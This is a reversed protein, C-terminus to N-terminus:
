ASDQEAALDRLLDAADTGDSWPLSARVFFERSLRQELVEQTIGSLPGGEGTQTRHAHLAALKQEKWRRTDLIDTIEARPTGLNARATESLKSLPGNPRDLLALMDERPTTGFYLSPTQWPEHWSGTRFAPDAAIVVAHRVVHHLHIHDPHGYVGEPGFTVIAAPRLERIAPVLEAAAEVVSAQVFANPHLANESGEMGSDRYGLFRVDSVGLLRMAERLERERAEGLAETGALGPISSEGAEGRTACILTVPVGREIAAVLLGGATITEDDPHPFIALLPGM